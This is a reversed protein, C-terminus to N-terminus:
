WLERAELRRMAEACIAKKPGFLGGGARKLALKAEVNGVAALGRAAAEVTGLAERSAGMVPLPEELLKLLGQVASEGACLGYAICVDRKVEGDRKGFDAAGVVGRLWKTAEYQKQATIAEIAARRVGANGDVAFPLVHKLEAEPLEDKYWRLVEEKVLRSSHQLLAPRAKTARGRGLSRALAITPVVREPPQSTANLLWADVREGVVVGLTAQLRSARAADKDRAAGELVSQLISDPLREVLRRLDEGDAGHGTEGQLLVRGVRAPQIAQAFFERVTGANSSERLAPEDMLRAGEDLVRVIGTVDNRRYLDEVAQRALVLADTPPLEQRGAALARMLVCVVRAAVDGPQERELEKRMAAIAESDESGEGAYSPRGRTSEEFFRGGDEGPGLGALDSEAVARHVADESVRAFNRKADVFDAVRLRAIPDVGAGLESSGGSARGSLAEAEMLTAVAQFGIREFGAQWLLSELTEEEYEPLEFNIRLVGMLKGLESQTIGRGVSLSAIGERHLLRGLGEQEDSEEHVVVGRWRLGDPASDFELAGHRDLPPAFGRLIKELARVTEKHAPGYLRAHGLAIHLSDIADRVGLLSSDDPPVHYSM